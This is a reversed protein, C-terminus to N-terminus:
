FGLKLISQARKKSELNDELIGEYYKETWNIKQLIKEKDAYASKMKTLVDGVQALIEDGHGYHEADIYIALFNLYALKDVDKKIYTRRENCLCFIAIPDDMNMISSDIIIRPFVAIHEEVYNAQILSKGWLFSTPDGDSPDRIYLEGMTVCGRVLWEFDILAHKQFYALLYLLRLISNGKKDSKEPVKEAIVINDSFIKFIPKEHTYTKQLNLSYKWADQYLTNIKNLWEGNQEDRIKEKSGLMDLYAVFYKEPRLM